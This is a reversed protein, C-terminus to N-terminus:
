LKSVIVGPKSYLTVVAASSWGYNHQLALKADDVQRAGAQGRLQTVIEFAQQLGTAGVPHSKSILGGSPNVVQGSSLHFLNEGARNKRWEGQRILDVGRGEPALGLAEYTILENSSFADHLEIVNIQDVTINSEKYVQQAARKSLDYGCLNKTVDDGPQSPEFTEQTDSTMAQALIEVAKEQLSHKIVFDLDCLIAAAAGSGMPASMASTLPPFLPRSELVDKTSMPKRVLALPNLAAMTHAKSAIFAIDDQTVHPYKQMYQNCNHAYVKLVSETLETVGAKELFRKKPIGAKWMADLHRQAPHERDNFLAQLGGPVKEFGVALVCSSGSQVLKNAMYLATSGTACNNNTNMIPIGQIGARYCVTQGATSDGYVFGAVAHQIEKSEINADVVASQIAQAGFEPYDCSEKGPWEFKSHGIGVVFVRRKDKKDM